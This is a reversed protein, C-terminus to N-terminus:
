EVSRPDDHEAALRDLRGTGGFGLRTRLEGVLGSRQELPQALPARPDGALLANRRVDHEAIRRQTADGEGPGGRELLEAGDRADALLLELAVALANQAHNGLGRAAVGRSM